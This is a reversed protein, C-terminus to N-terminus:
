SSKGRGVSMEGESIGERLNMTDEVTMNAERKMKSRTEQQSM